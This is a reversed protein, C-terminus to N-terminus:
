GSILDDYLSEIIDVDYYNRLLGNPKFMNALKLEDNYGFNTRFIKNDWILDGVFQIFEKSNHGGPFDSKKKKSKKILAAGISQFNLAINDDENEKKEWKVSGEAESLIAPITDFMGDGCMWGSGAKGFKCTSAARDLSDKNNNNLQDDIWEHLLNYNRLGTMMKPIIVHIGEETHLYFNLEKYKKTKNEIEALTKGNVFFDKFLEAYLEPKYVNPLYQKIKPVNDELKKILVAAEKLTNQYYWAVWQSIILQADIMPEKYTLKDQLFALHRKTYVLNFFTTNKSEQSPQEVGFIVTKEEDPIKDYFSLVRNLLEEPLYVIPDLQYKNISNRQEDTVLTKPRSQEFKTQCSEYFLSAYVSVYNVPIKERAEGETEKKWQKVIELRQRFFNIKENFETETMKKGEIFWEKAGNKWEVAPGDLRHRIGNVWWQKSGNSFEVAPGDLRHRDGNIVWEKSGDSLEVAPSGIRHLYGDIWWQKSGNSFEVAPGDLRSKKDASNKYIKDGKENEVVSVHKMKDVFEQETMKKDEVYWKKTGDENEIAPGDLRHNEYGQITWEKAGNKREIAPGDLRHNVGKFNWSTYEDREIAPGDLRHLHNAREAFYYLGPDYEEPDFVPRSSTLFETPERQRIAHRKNRAQKYMKSLHKMITRHKLAKNSISNRKKKERVVSRYNKKVFKQWSSIKNM